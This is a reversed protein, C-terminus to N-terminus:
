SIQLFIQLDKDLYKLESNTYISWWKFYSLTPSLQISIGQDYIMKYCNLLLNISIAAIEKPDMHYPTYNLKKEQSWINIHKTYKMVWKMAELHINELQYTSNMVDSSQKPSINVM